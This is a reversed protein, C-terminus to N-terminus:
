DAGTTPGVAAIQADLTSAPPTNGLRIALIRTQTATATPTAKGVAALGDAGGTKTIKGARLADMAEDILGASLAHHQSVSGQTIGLLAAVRIQTHEPLSLLHEIALITDCINDPLYGPGQYHFVVALKQAEALPGGVVWCTLEALPFPRGSTGYETALELLAALRRNGELLVWQPGDEILVQWVTLPRLLGFEVISAKLGQLDGLDRRVPTVGHGHPLICALPISQARMREM